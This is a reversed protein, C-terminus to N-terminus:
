LPRRTSVPMTGKANPRGKSPPAAYAALASRIPDAIEPVGDLSTALRVFTEKGCALPRIPKRWLMMRALDIGHPATLEGLELLANAIGEVGSWHTRLLLEAGDFCERAFGDGRKALLAIKALQKVDRGGGRPAFGALKEAVAGAALVRGYSRLAEQTFDVPAGSRMTFGECDGHPLATIMRPAGFIGEDLLLLAAHGAEHYSTSEISM